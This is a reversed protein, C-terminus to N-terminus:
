KFHIIQICKLTDHVLVQFENRTDCVFSLKIQKNFLPAPTKRDYINEKKYRDLIM